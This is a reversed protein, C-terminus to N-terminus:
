DKVPRVPFTYTNFDCYWISMNIDSGNQFFLYYANEDYIHYVSSTWYSGSWFSTYKTFPLILFNGTVDSDVIVLCHKRIGDPRLEIFYKDTGNILSGDVTEQDPVSWGSPIGAEEWYEPATQWNFENGIDLPSAAGVNVTGWKVNNILVFNDAGTEVWKGSSFSPLRIAAGSSLPSELHKFFTYTRGSEKAIFLYDTLQSNLKGSLYYGKEGDITAAYATFSQSYAIDFSIKLENNETLIKWIYYRQIGNCAIEITGSAEEDPIFFQVFPVDAPTAMNLSATIKHEDTSTNVTYTYPVNKAVMFYCSQDGIEWEEGDFVPNLKIGYPMYVAGLQKGSAALDTARATGKFSSKWEEGNYTLVLYGTNIDQFFVYVADGNVWGKPTGKTAPHKVSFDFVIDEIGVEKEPETENKSCGWVALLTALLIVLKKM